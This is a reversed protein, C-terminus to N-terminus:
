IKNKIELEKKQEDQSTKDKHTPRSGPRGYNKNELKTMIKLVSM